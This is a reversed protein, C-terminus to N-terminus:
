RWRQKVILDLGSFLGLAIDTGSSSGISLITNLNLKVENESKHFISHLLSIISERVQGDAAKKLAMFSIENTLDRASKITEKCFSIYKTLPSHPLNFITILGVLFDDGSPTLGPGLGILKTAHNLASAINGYSLELLLLRSQEELLRAVEEEAENRATTAKMMGGAKGYTQVYEKAVQLNRKLCEYTSPFHPLISRWTKTKGTFIALKKGIKLIQKEM